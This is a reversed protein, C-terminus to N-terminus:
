KFLINGNLTVPTVESNTILINCNAGDVNSIDTGITMSETSVINNALDVSQFEITPDGLSAELSNVAFLDYGAISSAKITLTASGTVIKDVLVAALFGGGKSQKTVDSSRFDAFALGNILVLMSIISILVSALKKM